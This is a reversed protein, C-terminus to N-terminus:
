LFGQLIRLFGWLIGLFVEHFGWFTKSFGPLIKLVGQLIWSLGVSGQLVALFSMGTTHDIQNHGLPILLFYIREFVEPAEVVSM